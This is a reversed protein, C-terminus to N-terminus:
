EVSEGADAPIFLTVQEDVFRASATALAMRELRGLRSLDRAFILRALSRAIADATDAMLIVDQRVVSAPATM